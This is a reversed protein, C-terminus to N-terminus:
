ADHLSWERSPNYLKLFFSIFLYYTSRETPLAPSAIKHVLHISINGTRVSTETRRLLCAPFCTLDVGPAISHFPFHPHQPSSPFPHQGSCAAWPLSSSSSTWASLQFILYSTASIHPPPKGSLLWWPNSPRLSASLHSFLYTCQSPSWCPWESFRTQLRQHKSNSHLCLLSVLLLQLLLSPCVM